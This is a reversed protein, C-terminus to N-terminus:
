SAERGICDDAFQVPKGLLEGLRMAIPRLSLKPDPKGDPRGLHSMLVVAAGHDLLYTITPLSARIRTDDSIEGTKKDLPVNFDVRELVRRGDVVIDRVTAKDFAGSSAAGGAANSTTEAM